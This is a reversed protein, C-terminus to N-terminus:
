DEWNTSQGIRDKRAHEGPHARIRAEFDAVAEEETHFKTASGGGDAEETAIVCGNRSIRRVVAGGVEKAERLEVVVDPDTIAM